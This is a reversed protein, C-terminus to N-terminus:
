KGTIDSTRLSNKELRRAVSPTPNEEFLDKWRHIIRGPVGLPNRTLTPLCFSPLNRNEDGLVRISVPIGSNHDGSNASKEPVIVVLTPANKLIWMKVGTTNKILKTYQSSHQM